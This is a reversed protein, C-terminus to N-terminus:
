LRTEPKLIDFDYNIIVRFDQTDGADEDHISASRLRLWLGKLAGESVRYDLTIDAENQDALNEQSDEDIASNGQVFSTAVKFGNLGVKALDYAVGIQWSDEGARNFDTVISSNYGPYVGYPTRIDAGSNNINVALKFVLGQYSTASQLGWFGTSYDQDRLLDDGVSSQYSYQASLTEEIEENFKFKYVSDSYVINIVDEVYYNIGSLSWDPNIYARAGGLIMGRDVENAGAADSMSIFNESDRKKMNHIYGTIYQFTKSSALPQAITYGEFTHPLMRSDQENVYPLNYRQRYLSIVQGEVTFRPNAVGITTIDNQHKDLLSTGTHEEPADLPFSGMLETDMSFIGGVRGIKHALIGGQAWAYSDIAQPKGRNMYFNRLKLSLESSNLLESFTTEPAMEESFERNFTSDIDHASDAIPVNNEPEALVHNFTVLLILFNKLVSIIFTNNM